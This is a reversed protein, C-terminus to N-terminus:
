RTGHPSSDALVLLLPALAVAASLERGELTQVRHRRSCPPAATKYQPIAQVLRSRPRRTLIVSSGRPRQAVVFVFAPYAIPGSVSVVEWLCVM